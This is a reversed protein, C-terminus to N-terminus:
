LNFFWLMGCNWGLKKIHTNSHLSKNSFSASKDSWTKDKICVKTAFTVIVRRKTAFAALIAIDSKQSYSKVWFKPLFESHFNPSQLRQQPSFNRSGDVFPNPPIDGRESRLSFFNRIPPPIRYFFTKAVMGLSFSLPALAGLARPEGFTPQQRPVFVLTEGERRPIYSGGNELMGESAM